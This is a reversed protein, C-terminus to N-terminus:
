IETELIEKSSESNKEKAILLQHTLIGKLEGLAKRFKLPFGPNKELQQYLNLRKEPEPIKTNVLTDIQQILTNLGQTVLYSKGQLEFEELGFLQLLSVFDAKSAQYLEWFGEYFMQTQLNIIAWDAEGLLAYDLGHTYDVNFYLAGVFHEQSLFKGLQGLWENKREKESRFVQQSKEHLYNGSYYVASTGVEDVFLPKGLKKMRDLTNWDPDNLIKDPAIWQRHSTAKGWNYFSVGVLDVYEDGPYYDEFRFCNELKKIAKKQEELLEKEAPTLTSKKELKELDKQLPTLDKCTILSSQQNPRPDLTPMDWHNLSFDFLIQHQDLGLSRALSWVHIRAKKFNEPDSSRPYRGGNMEHMTRFIVKLNYDKITQFFILYQQDFAGAAVEAATYNDPSLTLHYIRQNGLQTTIKGLETAVDQADRPDYIFGVLPLYLRYEKEIALINEVSNDSSKLGFTYAQTNPIGLLLFISM